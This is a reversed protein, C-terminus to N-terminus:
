QSSFFGYFNRFGGLARLVLFMAAGYNACSFAIFLVFFWVVVDCQNRSNVADGDRCRQSNDAFLRWEVAREPARFYLTGSHPCPNSLSRSDYRCFGFSRPPHVAARSVAIEGLAPADHPLLFYEDILVQDQLSLPYM